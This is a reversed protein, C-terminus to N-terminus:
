QQEARSKIVNVLKELTEGAPAYLVHEAREDLHTPEKNIIVLKAAFRPLDAAPFVALSSGVVMMLDCGASLDGLARMYDEGMQDGFLVINPRLPQRCGDCLPPIIGKALQATLAGFEYSESCSTCRCTRVHGHIEYLKRSGATYHLNDINQTILGSLLGMEELTALAYHGRNPKAELLQAFRSFGHQWFMEPQTYLVQATSYKRPDVKEWLGSGPTRFDPIGSETSIGAGTLVFFSRSEKILSEIKEPM